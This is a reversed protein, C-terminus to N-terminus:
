VYYLCGQTRNYVRDMIIYIMAAESRGQQEISEVVKNNVMIDYVNM